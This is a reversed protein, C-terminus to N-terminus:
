KKGEIHGGLTIIEGNNGHVDRDKATSPQAPLDDHKPLNEAVDTLADKKSYM